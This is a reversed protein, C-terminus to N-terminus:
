AALHPLELQVPDRQRCAAGIVIGDLCEKTVNLQHNEIRAIIGIDARRLAPNAIVQAATTPPALARDTNRVERIGRLM